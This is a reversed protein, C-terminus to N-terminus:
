DDVASARVTSSRTNPGIDLLITLKARLTLVTEISELDRHVLRHFFSGVISLSFSIFCINSLFIHCSLCMVSRVVASLDATM